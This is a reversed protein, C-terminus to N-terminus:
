HIHIIKESKIKQESVPVGLTVRRRVQKLMTQNRSQTLYLGGGVRRILDLHDLTPIIM